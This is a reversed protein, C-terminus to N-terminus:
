TWGWTILGTRVPVLRLVGAAGSTPIWATDSPLGSGPVAQASQPAFRVTAPRGRGVDLLSLHSAACLQWMVDDSDYAAAQVLVTLDATVATEPPQEQRLDRAFEPPELPGYMEVHQEWGRLLEATRSRALQGHVKPEDASIEKWRPELATLVLGGCHRSVSTGFDSMSGTHRRPGDFDIRLAAAYERLEEAVGDIAARARSVADATNIRATSGAWEGAARSVVAMLDNMAQAASGLGTEAVWHAARHQWSRTVSVGALVLAALLAVAWAATPLATGTVLAAGGVAGVVAGVANGGLQGPHDTVRGGPGKLLTLAVLATWLVAATAGSILGLPGLGALLGTAAGAVPSWPQPAPFPPPDKLRALLEEPCAREIVVTHRDAGTRELERTLDRLDASMRPLSIERNLGEHVYRTMAARIRGADFDELPPLVVGQAAVARQQSSTLEGSGPASALLHEVGGRLEALRFGVEIVLDRAPSAPALLHDSEPLSSVLDITSEVSQRCQRFATAVPGNGLKVSGAPVPLPGLDERDPLLGGGAEDLLRETVAVLALLFESQDSQEGALWLGPCSVGGPVAAALRSARDFVEAIQLVDLLRRLGNGPGAAEERRVAAASARLPWDIGAPDLVWLVGSSQGAAISAPMSIAGGDEAPPGIVVCLLSDVRRATLLQEFAQRHLAVSAAHEVVLLRTLDPEDTNALLELVAEYARDTQQDRLDLLVVRRRM